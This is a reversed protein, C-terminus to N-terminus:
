REEEPHETTEDTPAATVRAVDTGPAGPSGPVLPVPPAQGRMGPMAAQGVARTADGGHLGAAGQGSRARAIAEVSEPSVEAITREQGRIRLVRPVSAVIPEGTASLAPLTASNSRAYVGPGPLQNISGRGAAYARMKAEALRPQTMQARLRERHTLTVAGLAAIILLAGTLEMTLVHDSFILRAVGVPNTDSNAATLGAPAPMTASVVVGVLVLLLGLGALGAVWRQGRITEHLSDSSDVGVLMLVFLFLMMIAGTYVVVQAAGLFPASQAVYLFALAVMVLVVSMAAHVARRSFLLGLAGVVMIPALVWFLVAEGTSFGAPAAVAAPLALALASM